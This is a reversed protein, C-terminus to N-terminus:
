RCNALGRQASKRGGTGTKGSMTKPGAPWAGLTTVIGLGDDERYDLHVRLGDNDDQPARLESRDDQLHISNMRTMRLLSPTGVHPDRDAFNYM